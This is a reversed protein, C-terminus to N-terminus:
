MEFSSTTDRHRRNRLHRRIILFITTIIYLVAMPGLTVHLYFEVNNGNSSTSDSSMIVSVTFETDTSPLTPSLEVQIKRTSPTAVSSSSDQSVVKKMSITEPYAPSLTTFTLPDPNSSDIEPPLNQTVIPSSFTAPNTTIVTKETTLPLVTKICDVLLNDWNTLV